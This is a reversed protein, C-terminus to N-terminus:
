KEGRVSFFAALRQESLGDVAARSYVGAGAVALASQDLDTAFIKVEQSSHAEDLLERLLIAISYPEEGTSCGAVWIRIPSSSDREAVLPRLVQERLAEFASPDRMFRTVGILLERYLAHLEDRDSRARETYEALSALQLSAMRREVRRGITARKYESFDVDVELALEGLLEDLLREHEVPIAPTPPADIRSFHALLQRPMAEPPMVLEASGSDIASRPMGDFQASAPDQALVLGGVQKVARVGVTGDTGTGSLVIAVAREGLSVALSEFFSDIGFAGAQGREKEELRICGGQLSLRKAPPVLYICDPEVPQDNAAQHVKLSTRRGLLEVMLSKHDPSLHQVVVFALGCPMPVAAFFRELADLGGASAGIGVVRAPLPAALTALEEM